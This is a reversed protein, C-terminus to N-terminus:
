HGKKKKLLRQAAQFVVSPINRNRAVSALDAAHLEKVVSVAVPLPCKPNNALARKVQYNRMWEPNAAILRIVEGDVNRSGAIDVVERDNMRGSKVVACAVLRNSDRLLVKRATANGLYALKIKQGVGLARILQEVGAREEADPREGDDAEQLLRLDFEVEDAKGGFDFAEEDQEIGIPTDRGEDRAADEEREELLSRAIVWNRHLTIGLDDFLARLDGALGVSPAEGDWAPGPAALPASPAAAKPPPPDTPEPAAPQLEEPKAPLDVNQLRLFTEVKELTSRQTAGNFQLYWYLVPRSVMREQNAAIIEVVREGGDRALRLYGSDPTQRLLALHERLDDDSTTYAYFELIKPHTSPGLAGLLLKTPQRRLTRQASKKVAGEGERALVYLLSLLHHLPIPLLAQAVAMRPGPPADPSLHVRYEEPIQLREALDLFSAM